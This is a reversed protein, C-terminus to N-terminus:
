PNVMIAGVLKAHAQELQTQAEKAQERTTHGAVVTLLAQETLAGILSADAGALVPSSQYIVIGPPNGPQELVKRISNM